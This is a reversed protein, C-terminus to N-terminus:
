YSGISDGKLNLNDVQNDIEDSSVSSVSETDNIEVKSFQNSIQESSM